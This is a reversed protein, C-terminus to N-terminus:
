AVFILWRWKWSGGQCSAGHEAAGQGRRDAALIGAPFVRAADRGLVHRTPRLARHQRQACTSWGQRQCLGVLSLSTQTLRPTEAAKFHLFSPPPFIWISWLHLNPITVHNAYWKEKSIKKNSGGSLSVRGLLLHNQSYALAWFPSSVPRERLTQNVSEVDQNKKNTSFSKPLM